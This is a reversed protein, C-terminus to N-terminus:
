MSMPIPIVVNTNTNTNTNHPTLGTSFAIFDWNPEAKSHQCAVERNQSKQDDDDDDGDDDDYDGDDNNDDGDDDDDISNGRSLCCGQNSFILRAIHDFEWKNHNLM